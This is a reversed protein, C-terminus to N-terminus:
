RFLHVFGSKAKRKDDRGHGEVVYYYVGPNCLKGGTTGDWVSSEVTKEYGAINNNEWVHILKGWRNFISIKMSKMSHYELRFTPNDEDGNPTFVNPIKVFSTDALIYGNNVDLYFTDICTHFETVKKSVLMVKYEGSRDFTFEASEGLIKKLVPDNVIGAEKEKLLESRDRFIFWEFEKADGNESNNTFEVELPAEGKDPNAIFLAKTVISKYTVVSESECGFKDSVQFTYETDKTPPDFITRNKLPSGDLWKFVIEKELEKELGTTLDIYKLIPEPDFAGKLAFSNCNSNSIEATTEIYNNFVWAKDTTIGSTSTINVRYFGDELDSITSTNSGSETRFFVFAGANYKQWEFSGSETNPATAKLSAKKHGKEGCFIHISDQPGSSYATPVVDDSTSTIQAFGMSPVFVFVTWVIFAVVINKIKM